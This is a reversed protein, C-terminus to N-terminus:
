TVAVVAETEDDYPGQLEWNRSSGLERKGKRLKIGKMAYAAGHDGELVVPANPSVGVEIMRAAEALLDKLTM